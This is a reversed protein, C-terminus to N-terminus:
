SSTDRLSEAIRHSHPSRAQEMKQSMPREDDAFGLPVSRRVEAVNGYVALPLARLARIADESAVGHEAHAVLQEKSAPFDADNLALEIDAWDVTRM